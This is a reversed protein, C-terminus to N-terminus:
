QERAKQDRCRRTQAPHSGTEELGGPLRYATQEWRHRLLLACLVADIGQQATYTKCCRRQITCSLAKAQLAQESRRNCVLVQLFHANSAFYPQESGYLRSHCPHIATM